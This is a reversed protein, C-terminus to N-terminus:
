AVINDGLGLRTGALSGSEGDGSKLLDVGVQLRALSEDKCGSTLQSLLDLLDNDSNAIEHVNLAM